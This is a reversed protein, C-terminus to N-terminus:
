FFLIKAETSTHQICVSALIFPLQKFITAFKKLFIDEIAGPILM